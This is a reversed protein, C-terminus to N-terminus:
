IEKEREREGESERERERERERANVRARAREREGVRENSYKTHTAGQRKRRSDALLRSWRSGNSSLGCSNKDL